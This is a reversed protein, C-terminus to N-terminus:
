EVDDKIARVGPKRRRAEVVLADLAAPTLLGAATGFMEIGSESGLAMSVGVGVYAVLTLGVILYVRHQHKIM